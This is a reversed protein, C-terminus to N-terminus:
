EGAIQYRDTGGWKNWTERVADIHHRSADPSFRLGLENRLSAISVSTAALLNCRYVFRIEKENRFIRRKSFPPIRLPYGYTVRGFTFNPLQRREREGSLLEKIVGYRITVGVGSPGGAYRHWLLYDDHHDTLETWSSVLWNSRFRDAYDDWAIPAVDRKLPFQQVCHNYDAPVGCDAKDEFASASGFYVEFGRLFWLFKATSLYRCIIAESSPQEIDASLRAMILEYIRPSLNAQDLAQGVQSQTLNALDAEFAHTDVHANHVDSIYHDDKVDSM